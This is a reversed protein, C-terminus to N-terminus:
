GALEHRLVVARVTMPHWHGGEKAPVSRLNLGTAIQRYSAGLARLQLIVRVALAEDPHTVADRERGQGGARYGFAYSGVAKRGKAAKASRGDKLRKTVLRRELESFGGVVQRLATRTPDDPDDQVVEGQDACFVRRGGRWIIGLTAEQVTLSRALRDLRAVLIGDVERALVAHLVEALGARDLADTAGSVGVDSVVSVLNHQRVQAWSRVATEQSDLGYGDLQSDDSVRLYGILRM